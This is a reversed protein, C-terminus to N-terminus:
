ERDKCQVRSLRCAEQDTLQAELAQLQLSAVNERSRIEPARTRLEELSILEEQYAEIAPRTTRSAVVM